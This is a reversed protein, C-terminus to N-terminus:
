SSVNVIRAPITKWKLIDRVAGLRREGFVLEMDETVGIPQLLGEEKISQALEKLSGMDKRHRNGVGIAAIKLEQLMAHGIEKLLPSPRSLMRWGDLLGKKM